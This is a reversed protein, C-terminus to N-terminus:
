NHKKKQNCVNTMKITSKTESDVFWSTEAFLRKSFLFVLKDGQQVLWTEIVKGYILYSDTELSKLHLQRLYKFIMQM